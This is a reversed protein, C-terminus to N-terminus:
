HYSYCYYHYYYNLRQLWQTMEEGRLPFLSHFRATKHLKPRAITLVFLFRLALFFLHSMSLRREGLFILGTTYARSLSCDRRKPSTRQALSFFYIDAHWASTYALLGGRKKENGRCVIGFLLSQEYKILSLSVPFSSLRYYRTFTSSQFRKHNIYM